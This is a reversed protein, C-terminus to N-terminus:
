LGMKKNLQDYLGSFAKRAHAKVRRSIRIWKALFHHWSQSIHNLAGYQEQSYKYKKGKIIRSTIFISSMLQSIINIKTECLQVFPILFIRM